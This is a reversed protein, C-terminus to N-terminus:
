PSISRITVLGKCARAVERQARTSKIALHTAEEGNALKLAPFADILKRMAGHYLWIPGLILHDNFSPRSRQDSPADASGALPVDAQGDSPSDAEGTSPTVAATTRPRTANYMALQIMQGNVVTQAKALISDPIPIEMIGTSVGLRHALFQACRLAVEYDKLLYVATPESSLNGGSPSWLKSPAFSKDKTLCESQLYCESAVYFFYTHGDIEEPPEEDFEHRHESVFSIHRSQFSRWAERVTDLAWFHASAVNRLSRFEAAVIKECMEESFGINRLVERSNELEHTGDDSMGITQRDPVNLCDHIRRDCIEKLITNEVKYQNLKGYWEAWINAATEKKFGAFRLFEETNIERTIAVDLRDPLGAESSSTTESASPSDEPFDCDDQEVLVFDDNFTM